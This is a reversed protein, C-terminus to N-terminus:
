VLTFWKRSLKPGLENLRRFTTVITRLHRRVKKDVALNRFESLFALMEVETYEVNPNLASDYDDILLLLFKDQDQQGIKKLIRRIDAKEITEGELVEDILAELEDNDEVEDKLLILIEKWFAYPTFPNIDTCNLYVIFSKSYDQGQEQWIEPYTLLYLLSSKGMGSSGYFAAHGRFNNAM